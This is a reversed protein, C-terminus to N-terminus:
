FKLALTLNIHNYLLAYISKLAVIVNAFVAGAGRDGGASFLLCFIIILLQAGNVLHMLSIFLVHISLVLSM